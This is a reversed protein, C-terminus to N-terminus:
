PLLIRRNVYAGPLAMLAAVSLVAGLGPIGGLACLELGPAARALGTGTDAFFLAAEMEHNRCATELSQGAVTWGKVKSARVTKTVM